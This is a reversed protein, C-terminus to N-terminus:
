TVVVYLIQQTIELTAPGHWRQENVVNSVMHHWLVRDESTRILQTPSVNDKWPACLSDLYVETESAWEM